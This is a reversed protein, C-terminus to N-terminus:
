SFENLFNNQNIEYVKSSLKVTVEEQYIFARTWINFSHNKLTLL